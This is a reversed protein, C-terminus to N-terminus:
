LGLENYRTETASSAERNKRGVGNVKIGIAIVSPPEIIVSHIRNPSWLHHFNRKKSTSPTPVQSVLSIRADIQRIRVFNSAGDITSAESQSCTPTVRFGCLYLLPFLM